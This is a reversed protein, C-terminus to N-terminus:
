KGPLEHPGDSYQQQSELEFVPHPTNLEHAVKDSKEIGSGTPENAHSKRRFDAKVPAILEQFGSLLGESASIRRLVVTKRWQTLGVIILVGTISGIFIGAKAGQSLHHDDENMSSSQTSTPQVPAETPTISTVIHTITTPPPSIM